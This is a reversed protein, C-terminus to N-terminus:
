KKAKALSEIHVALLGEMIKVHREVMLQVYIRDVGEPVKVSIDVHRAKLSYSTLPPPLKM